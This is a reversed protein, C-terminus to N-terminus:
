PNRLYGFNYTVGGALIFQFEGAQLGDQQLAIDFVLNPRVRFSISQLLSLAADQGTPLEHQAEFAVSFRSALGAHGLSRGYGYALDVQWDPDVRSPATAALGTVNVVLSNLGFGYVAIAKGGLKAGSGDRVFFEARPAIAFSLGGSSWVRRRIMLDLTQGFRTRERGREGLREVTDFGLSFEMGQFLGNAAPPTFRISTPLTFSSWPGQAGFETEVTGPAATATDSTFTPRQPTAEPPSTQAAASSAWISVALLVAPPISRAQRMQDHYGM